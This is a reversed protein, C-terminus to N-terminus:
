SRFRELHRAFAAQEDARNFWHDARQCDAPRALAATWFRALLALWDRTAKLLGRPTMKAGAIRHLFAGPTKLDAPPNGAWSAYAHYARGCAQGDLYALASEKTLGCWQHLRSWRCPTHPHTFREPTLIMGVLRALPVPALTTCFSALPHVAHELLLARLSDEDSPDTAALLWAPVDGMARRCLRNNLMTGYTSVSLGHIARLPDKPVGVAALPRYVRAVADRLLEVVVVANEPTAYFTVAEAGAALKVFRDVDCTTAAFLPAGAIWLAEGTHHFLLHM